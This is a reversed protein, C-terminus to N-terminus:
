CRYEKCRYTRGSRDCRIECKGPKDIIIRDPPEQWRRWQDRDPKWDRSGEWRESSFPFGRREGDRWREDAQAGALTVLMFALFWGILWRRMAPGHTSTMKYHSM